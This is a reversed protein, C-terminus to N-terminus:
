TEASNFYVDSGPYTTAVAMVVGNELAMSVALSTGAVEVLKATGKV